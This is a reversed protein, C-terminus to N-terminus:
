ESSFSLPSSNATEKGMHELEREARGDRGQGGSVGPQQCHVLCVRNLLGRHSGRETTCPCIHIGRLDLEETTELIVGETRSTYDTPGM